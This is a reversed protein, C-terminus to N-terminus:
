PFKKMCSGRDERVGRLYRTFVDLEWSVCCCAWIMSFIFLTLICWLGRAGGRRGGGLGSGVRGKKRRGIRM